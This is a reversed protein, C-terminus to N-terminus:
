GTPRVSFPALKAWPDRLCFLFLLELAAGCLYFRFYPLSVSLLCSLACPKFIRCVVDTGAKVETNRGFSFVLGNMSCM